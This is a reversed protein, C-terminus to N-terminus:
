SYRKFVNKKRLKRYHKKKMEVAVKCTVNNNEVDEINHNYCM